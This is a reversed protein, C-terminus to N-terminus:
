VCAGASHGSGEGEVDGSFSLNAMEVEVELTDDGAGLDAFFIDDDVTGHTAHDMRALIFALSLRATAIIIFTLSFLRTAVENM